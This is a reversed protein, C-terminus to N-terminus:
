QVENGRGKVGYSAKERMLWFIRWVAYSSIHWYLRKRLRFYRFNHRHVVFHQGPTNPIISQRRNGVNGCVRWGHSTPGRIGILSYPGRSTEHWALRSNQGLSGGDECVVNYESLIALRWPYTSRIYEEFRHAVYASMRKQFSLGHERSGELHVHSRPQYANGQVTTTHQNKEKM